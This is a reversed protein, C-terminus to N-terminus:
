RPRTEGAVELRIAIYVERVISTERLVEWRGDCNPKRAAPLRVKVTITVNVQAVKRNKRSTPQRLLRSGLLIPGVLGDPETRARIGSAPDTPRVNRIKSRSAYSITL